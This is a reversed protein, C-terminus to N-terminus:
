INIESKIKHIIAAGLLCIGSNFVILAITGYVIWSGGSAKEFGADIAMSLGTGILILSLPSIILWRKYHQKKTM